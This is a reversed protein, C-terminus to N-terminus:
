EDFGATPGEHEHLMCAAPAHPVVTPRHRVDGHLSASISELQLRLLPFLRILAFHWSLCPTTDFAAEEILAEHPHARTEAYSLRM